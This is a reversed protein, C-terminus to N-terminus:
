YFTISAKLENLLPTVDEERLYERCFHILHEDTMRGGPRSRFYPAQDYFNDIGSECWMNGLEFGRCNYDAYEFDVLRLSSVQGCDNEEVLINGEQIDNHCLLIPSPKLRRSIEIYEEVSSRIVSLFTPEDAYLTEVLLWWKGINRESQPVCGREKPPQALQHISRLARALEALIDFRFFDDIRCTRGPLFEEFRGEAWEGIYAPGLGVSSFIRFMEKEMNRDYFASTHTGFMRIVIPLQGGTRAVFLQNTLGGALVDLTIKKGSWGKVAACLQRTLYEQTTM